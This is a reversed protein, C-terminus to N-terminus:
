CRSQLLVGQNGMTRLTPEFTSNPSHFERESPFFRPRVDVNTFPVVSLWAQGDWTDLTLREPLHPEVLGPDISWNAFCIHRWGMFLSVVM